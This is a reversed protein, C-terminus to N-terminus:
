KRQLGDLITELAPNFENQFLWVIAALSVSSGRRAHDHQEPRLRRDHRQLQPLVRSILGLVLTALLLAIM